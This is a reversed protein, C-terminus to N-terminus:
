GVLDLIEQFEKRLKEFQFQLIELEDSRKTLDSRISSLKSRLLTIETLSWVGEQYPNNYGM